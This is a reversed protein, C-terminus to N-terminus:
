RTEGDLVQRLTTEPNWHIDREMGIGLRNRVSQIESLSAYGLEDCDPGLPSVCYGFLTDEGDFETVFFTYRGSPDFIKLPVKIETPDREENTYLAPLLGQIEKTILKM